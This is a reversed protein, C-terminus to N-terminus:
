ATQPRQNPRAYREIFEAVIKEVLDGHDLTPAKAIRKDRAPDCGDAVRSLATRALERAHQLTIIPYPGLTLKRSQGRQRYRCAWSAKGSPQLIFYLGPLLGDPIERRAPGPKLNELTKVTLAKAM